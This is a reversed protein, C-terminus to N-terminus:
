GPAAGPDGRDRQLFFMWTNCPCAPDQLGGATDSNTRHTTQPNKIINTSCTSIINGEPLCKIANTPPIERGWHHIHQLSHSHQKPSNLLPPTVKSSELPHKQQKCTAAWSSSCCKQYVTCSFLLVLSPFLHPSAISSGTQVTATNMHPPIHSLFHPLNGPLASVLQTHQLLCCCLSSTPFFPSSGGTGPPM